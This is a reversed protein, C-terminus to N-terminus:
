EWIVSWCQELLLNTFIHFLPAHEVASVKTHMYLMGINYTKYLTNTNTIFVISIFLVTKGQHHLPM